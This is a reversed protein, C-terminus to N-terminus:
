EEQTKGRQDLGFAGFRIHKEDYIVTKSVARTDDLHIRRQTAKTIYYLHSVRVYFGCVSSRKMLSKLLM